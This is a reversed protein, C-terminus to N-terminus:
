EGRVGRVEHRDTLVPLWANSGKDAYSDAVWYGCVCALEDDIYLLPIRSRCWPPIEKQQMLNKLSSTHQQGVPKIKEGGHRFKITLNKELYKVALGETVRHNATITLALHNINLNQKVDWDFTLKEDHAQLSTMLYLEDKFRRLETNEWSVLPSADEAAPLVTSQIQQIINRTPKDLGVQKIWFRLLNFQRVSSLFSLRKLSIVELNATIVNALDIEAMAQILELNEQQIDASKKITASVQPWRQQLLPVVDQRLFNRDFSTDQNSPDDIWQLKNDNAYQKIQERSVDLMPRWHSGDGFVQEAPMSALGATGAGRMLQLLLTEAQDDQHHATLLIEQNKLNEKLARYRANRAAEEPSQGSKPTADVCISEFHIKLNECVLQCHRQWQNAEQQLGHNIYVARINLQAEACLHLLVHSDLGGSYAVLFIKNDLKKTDFSLNELTSKENDIAISNLADLFQEKFM